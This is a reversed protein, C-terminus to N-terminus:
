KGQNGPADPTNTTLFGLAGVRYNIVVVVIDERAALPRGDYVDMRNSGFSFGGGYIWLMVPRKRRESATRRAYIDLYLCDESKGPKDDYWPFPAKTYQQCAPPQKTAKITGNWPEVPEPKLFRLKGLPPKAFPVGLFEKLPTLGFLSYKGEVKGLPLDVVPSLLQGSTPWIVAILHILTLIYM